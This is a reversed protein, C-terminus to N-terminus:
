ARRTSASSMPTSGCRSRPTLTASGSLWVVHVPVGALLLMSAHVHRLNHLRVRPLSRSPRKSEDAPENYSAILKPMLETV